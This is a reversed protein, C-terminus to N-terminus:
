AGAMAALALIIIWAIVTRSVLSQLAKLEEGGAELLQSPEMDPTPTPAYGQQAALASQELLEPIPLDELVQKGFCKISSVFNGTLSFTAALLRAPVWDLYHLFELALQRDGDELEASRACLYSLRYGLAGCPGLIVFWFVPAFWRQYGEYLMAHRVHQHLAVADSISASQHFDGIALAKEYASEFDGSNWAFLYRHLAENFDGRGLSFLLVIVYLVLSLLGLLVSYFLAHLFLIVVVPLGVLLVLRLKGPGLLGKVTDMWHVFWDDRQVPGGSGWLQLLGLVILISIFEM